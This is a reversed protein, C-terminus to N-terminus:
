RLQLDFHKFLKKLFSELKGFPFQEKNLGHGTWLDIIFRSERNFRNRPKGRKKSCAGCPLTVSADGHEVRINVCVLNTRTIRKNFASRLWQTTIENNSRIEDGGFDISIM